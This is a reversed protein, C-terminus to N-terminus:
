IVELIDLVMGEGTALFAIVSDSVDMDEAGLVLRLVGTESLFFNLRSVGDNM